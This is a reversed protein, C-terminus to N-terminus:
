RHNGLIENRAFGTRCRRDDSIGAAEVVEHLKHRPVKLLARIQKENSIQRGAPSLDLEKKLGAAAILRYAHARKWGGCMRAICMRAIHKLPARHTSRYLHSDRIEALANGWAVFAGKTQRITRELETRRILEM